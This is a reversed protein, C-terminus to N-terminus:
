RKKLMSRGEDLYSKEQPRKVVHMGDKILELLIDAGPIYRIEVRDGKSLAKYEYMNVTFLRGDAEIRHGTKSGYLKKRISTNAKLSINKDLAERLAASRKKFLIFAVPVAVVVPFFRFYKIFISGDPTFLYWIIVTVIFGAGALLYADFKGDDILKKLYNHESISLSVEKKHPKEDKLTM